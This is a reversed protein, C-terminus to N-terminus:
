LTLKQAETLVQDAHVGPDVDRWVRAVKGEKDVLFSVRDYFGFTKDVGYAKGIAGDADAALPFPIKHEKQFDAHKAGSDKSVGIIGVHAADFKAWADRFACAEKTCGPTGDAPYFYVVVPKGRLSSLRVEEQAPGRAVLDPAAAGVPLLGSGGDPRRPEGCAAVAMVVVAVAVVSGRM